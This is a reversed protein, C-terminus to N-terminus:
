PHDLAGAGLGKARVHASDDLGIDSFEFFKQFGFSIRRLPCYYSAQKGVLFYPERLFRLVLFCCELFRRGVPAL